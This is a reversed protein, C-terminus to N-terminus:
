PILRRCISNRPRPDTIVKIEVYDDSRVPGNPTNESNGFYLGSNTGPAGAAQFGWQVDVGERDRGIAFGFCAQMLAEGMLGLVVHTSIYKSQEPTLASAVRAQLKKESPALQSELSNEDPSNLLLVMPVPLGSEAYVENASRVILDSQEANLPPKLNLNLDTKLGLGFSQRREQQFIEFDTARAFLPRLSEETALELKQAQQNVEAIGEPSHDDNFAFQVALLYLQATQNGLNSLFSEQQAASWNTQTLFDEYDFKAAARGLLGLQAMFEQNACFDVFSIEALEGNIMGLITPVGAPRHVTITRPTPLQTVKIITGDALNLPHGPSASEESSDIADSGHGALTKGPASQARVPQHSNSKVSIAEQLENTRCLQWVEVTLALLGALVLFRTAKSSSLARPKM